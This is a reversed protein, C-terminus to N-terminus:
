RKKSCSGANNAMFSTQRQNNRSAFCIALHHAMCPVRALSPTPMLHLFFLMERPMLLEHSNDYHATTRAGEQRDEAIKSFDLPTITPQVQAYLNIPLTLPNDKTSMNRVTKRPVSQGYKMRWDRIQQVQQKTLQATSSPSMKPLTSYVVLVYVVTRGSTADSPLFVIDRSTYLLEHSIDYHATTRAGHQGLDHVNGGM